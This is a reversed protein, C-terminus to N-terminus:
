IWLGSSALLFCIVDGFDCIETIETVGKARGCSRLPDVAIDWDWFPTTCPARQAESVESALDGGRHDCRSDLSFNTFTLVIMGLRTIPTV